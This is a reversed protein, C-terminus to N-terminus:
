VDERTASTAALAELLNNCRRVISGDITMGQGEIWTSKLTLERLVSLDEASVLCMGAAALQKLYNTIVASVQTSTLRDIWDGEREDDAADCLREWDPEFPASSTTM